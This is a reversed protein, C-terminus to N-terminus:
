GTVSDTPQQHGTAHSNAQSVTWLNSIHQSEETKELSTKPCNRDNPEKKATRYSQIGKPMNRVESMTTAVELREYSAKM